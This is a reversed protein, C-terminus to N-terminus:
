AHSFDPPTWGLYPLHWAAQITAFSVIWVRESGLVSTSVLMNNGLSMATHNPAWFMLAGPPAVTDPSHKDEAPLSNWMDIARPYTQPGGYAITVMNLCLDSWNKMPNAVQGIAWEQAQKCNNTTNQIPFDCEGVPYKKFTEATLPSMQEGSAIGLTNKSVIVNLTILDHTAKAANFAQEAAAREAEVTALLAQSIVIQNTQADGVRSLTLQYQQFAEPSDANLANMQTVFGPEAGLMYTQRVYRALNLKAAEVQGSMSALRAKSQKYAKKAAEFKPEAKALDKEALALQERAAALMAALDAAKKKIEKNKEDCAKSQTATLPLGPKKKNLAINLLVRCQDAHNLGKSSAPKKDPKANTTPKSASASPSASADASPKP